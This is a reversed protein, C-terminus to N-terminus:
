VAVADRAVRVAGPVGRADAEARRRQGGQAKARTFQVLDRADDRGREARRGGSALRRLGLVDDVGLDGLLGALAAGGQEGAVREIGADLESGGAPPARSPRRPLPPPPTLPLTLSFISPGM